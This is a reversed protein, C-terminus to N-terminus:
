YRPTRVHVRNLEDIIQNSIAEEPKEQKAEASKKEEQASM